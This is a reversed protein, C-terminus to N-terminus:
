EKPTKLYSIAFLIGLILDLTAGGLIMENARGGAYLWYVIIGFPFKEVLAALMLMRYRVPNSGIILFVIQFAVAVSVFGYFYEPHTIAPPYDRGTKDLLFYQPLLVLLGYIGATYFTYKAFKMFKKNNPPAKM